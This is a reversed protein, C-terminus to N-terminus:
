DNVHTLRLRDDFLALGVPARDVFTELLWRADRAAHESSHLRAIAGLGVAGLAIATASRPMRERSGLGAGRGAPTKASCGSSRGCVMSRGRVAPGSPPRPPAQRTM